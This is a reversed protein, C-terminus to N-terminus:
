FPIQDQTIILIGNDSLDDQVVAGEDVIVTNSTHTADAGDVLYRNYYLIHTDSTDEHTKLLGYTIYNARNAEAVETAQATFSYLIRGLEKMPTLSINTLRILINGETASKFLKVDTAYLFDLVKDRFYKEIVVMRQYADTIQLNTPLQMLETNNLFMSNYSGGALAETEISILGGINFQRYKMKGNRRIYPYRSGLTQTIAEGLVYKMNTIEPNYAIRLQREATILFVDDLLCYAINSEDRNTTNNENQFYIKYKYGFGTEVLKDTYVFHFAEGVDVTYDQILLIEWTIYNNRSSAREVTVMGHLAETISEDLEDTLISVEIVGTSLQMQASPAPGTLEDILGREDETITLAFTQTDLYGKATAYLIDITYAENYHNQFPYTSDDFTYRINNAFAGSREPYQKDTTYVTTWITNINNKLVIKYWDIYDDDTSTKNLSAILTFTDKTVDLTNINTTLPTAANIKTHYIRLAETFVSQASNDTKKIQIQIDCYTNATVPLNSIDASYKTATYNTSTITPLTDEKIIASITQVTGDSKTLKVTLTNSLGAVEPLYFSLAYTSGVYARITNDIIPALLTAM